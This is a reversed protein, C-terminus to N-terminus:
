STQGLQKQNTSWINKLIIYIHIYGSGSGFGVLKDLGIVRPQDYFFIFLVQITV